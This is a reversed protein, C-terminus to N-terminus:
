GLGKQIVVELAQLQLERLKKAFAEKVLGADVLAAHDIDSIADCSEELYVSLQQALYKEDRQVAHISTCTLLFTRFRDPRRLADTNVLLALLQKAALNPARSFQTHYQAVLSNLQQYQRPIKLRNGLQKVADLDGIAHLLAAFRITPEASSKSASILADFSYKGTDIEDGNALSYNQGFLANLEPAIAELAGCAKLVEFYREPKNTALARETETWVREAVLYKLEGDSVMKAMLEQTEVAITFSQEAFRAAFRAVRLVRLPDEEFAESVHRLIGADLDKRGDFPDTLNGAADRAIANVTLDRRLLDEKLTVEPNSNCVFGTYGHGSKRETRALAYEENTQPHLFVPFDKGVQRYGDKIMHEPTTGVVVWDREKVPIGLLEDRVAGGVLYIEM